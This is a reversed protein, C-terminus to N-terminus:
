IKGFDNGRLTRLVREPTMPMASQRQGTARAVANAIAAGVPVIPVEGVGRLGYPVDPVPTEIIVCDIAPLDLSTPIRYDLLSPNRLRGNADFDFYETLAWGLGQAVSGQIQGEISPPNVARGVDQFATYRLVTVQGTHPDVEVDCVHAGIEVGLPLRTSVGRGVIAGDLMTARALSQLSIFAGGPRTSRFEREAYVIDEPSCQLQEAARAKLQAIADQCAEHMAAAMTRTVRSGASLQTFGVSKTDGTQVFVDAIEVGFEEAVVQAIATRTGAVDVAGITAMLRGDGALAVHCASTMSTGRWYGLALGRGRPFRGTPLPDRWCAHESVRDLITTLGIPPFPTGVVMPSGTVSANRRRFEVPDLNLRQAVEDMAQEVAFATQTGGPGRYAEARPKNTCVDFGELKLHPCQYLNACAQMQLTTGVGPFAGAEFFFRGQIATLRGDRKAGVKVEIEAAPSPGTGLMVEERSLVIKVPRGTKEALKVAAPEIHAYIKGGFGGGIELPIVKLQSQPKGLIVALQLELTFAGQTTAWVTMMGSPEVQAVVALPEIYGQHVTDITVRREVVTEAEAFGQAVDGRALLTRAGINSPRQPRPEVGKTFCHDHLVPAGARMAEDMTMVPPLVEYDVEILALAAEAIYPDDAAVAAVPHGIWLVKDKAMNMLGIYWMDAGGEGVQAKADLPLDLFDEGTVVARVGKLALAKSVDVRLLRAHAHASRKIRGHLMGPLSFDAPYIARGTVREKADVRPVRKGVIKLAGADPSM